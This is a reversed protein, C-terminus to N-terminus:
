VVITPLLMLANVYWLVGPMATIHQKFTIRSHFLIHEKLLCCLVSTVMDPKQTTINLCNLLWNYHQHDENLALVGGDGSCM